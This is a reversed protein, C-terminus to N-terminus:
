NKQILKIYIQFVFCVSKMLYFHLPLIWVVICVDVLVWSAALLVDVLNQYLKCAFVVDFDNRGIIGMVDFLFIVLRM